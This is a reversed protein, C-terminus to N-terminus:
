TLWVQGVSIELAESWTCCVHSDNTSRGHVIPEVVKACNSIKFLGVVLIALIHVSVERPGGPSLLDFPPMQVKVVKGSWDLVGAV